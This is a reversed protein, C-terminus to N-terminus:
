VKQKLQVLSESLKRHYRLEIEYSDIAAQAEMAILDVRQVLDTRLDQWMQEQEAQFSLLTHAVWAKQRERKRGLILELFDISNLLLAVWQPLQHIHGVWSEVIGGVCYIVSRKESPLQNWLMLLELKIHRGKALEYLHQHLEVSSPLRGLWEQYATRVIDKSSGRILVNLNFHNSM